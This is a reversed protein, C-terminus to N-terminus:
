NRHEQLWNLVEFKGTQEAIQACKRGLPYNNKHLWTLLEIIYAESLNSNVTATSLNDTNVSLNRSHLIDMMVFKRYKMATALIKKPYELGQDLAYNLFEEDGDIIIGNYINKNWTVQSFLKFYILNKDRICNRILKGSPKFGRELLLRVTEEDCSAVADTFIVTEM